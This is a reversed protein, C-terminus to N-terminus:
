NSPYTPPSDGPQPGISPPIEDSIAVVSLEVFTSTSVVPIVKEVSVPSIAFNLLSPSKVNDPFRVTLPV